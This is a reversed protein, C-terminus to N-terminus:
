GRTAANSPISGSGFLPVNSFTLFKRTPSEPTVFSPFPWYLFLTPMKSAIITVVSIGSIQTGDHSFDTKTNCIRPAFVYDPIIVQKNAAKVTCIEHLYRVFM